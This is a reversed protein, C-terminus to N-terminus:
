DAYTIRASKRQRQAIEQWLSKSLANYVAPRVDELSLRGPEREVVQVLHVGLPSRVPESVAGTELAFAEESVAAPLGGRWGFWGVDGGDAATPAQSHKKAADAFTTKGAAIDEKVQLLLDEAEAV